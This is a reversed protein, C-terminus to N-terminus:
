SGDTWWFWDGERSAAAPAEYAPVDRAPAPAEYAPAERGPKPAEREPTPADHAPPENAAPPLEHSRDAARFGFPDAERREDEPEREQDQDQDQDHEQDTMETRADTMPRYATGGDDVEM